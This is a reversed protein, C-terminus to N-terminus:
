VPITYTMGASLTSLNTGSLSHTDQDNGGSLLAATKAYQYQYEVFLNFDSIQWGIGASVVPSYIAKSSTSLSSVSTSPRNYAVGAKAFANFGTDPLYVKFTALVPLSFMNIKVSPGDDQKGSLLNMYQPDLEIGVSMIDTVAFDYGAILGGSFGGIQVSAGEGLENKINNIPGGVFTYGAKAGLVFGSQAGAYSLGMSSSLLISSFIIRKIVNIKKSLM